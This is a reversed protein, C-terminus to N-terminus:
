LEKVFTNEVVHYGMSKYISATKKPDVKELNSMGCLAAGKEKSWTEYMELMELSKKTGRAEPSVYWILETTQLNRSFMSETLLASFVGEVHEDKTLVLVLFNENLIVDETSAIVKETDFGLVDFYGSSKVFQKILITIDFVDEETAERINYVPTEPM